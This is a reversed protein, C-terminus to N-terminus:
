NNGDNLQSRLKKAGKRNFKNTSLHGEDELNNVNILGPKSGGVARKASTKFKLSSICEEMSDLTLEPDNDSIIAVDNSSVDISNSCDAEHVHASQNSPMITPLNKLIIDEDDCIKMVTYVPDYQKINSSKVNIKFLVKKDMMNNLSPPYDDDGVADELVIKDVQKGCLQTTERDWLLLNISGSGDYVMVEVKYRIAAAGHTHGCKGCEYRDGIPTEVKKPCRRCAKYFWDNKGEEVSNLADKITKVSVSGRNFEDNASWAAPSSVQSIRTSSSPGGSLLRCRFSDIEKLTPNIHVKSIDFNSQVSTKGNWRTAKFYQLVVILTEVRGDDLHPLIHDVLQGFLTCSMKNNELDELIVVMRKTMLGRSTILDRPDEMRSVGNKSITKNDFVIFNTMTYMEFEIINGSWKEALARPITAYIRGGKCDQLIMEISGIEKKNYKSPVEWIRVIYVKFNWDLKMSFKRVPIVSFVRLQDTDESERGTRHM